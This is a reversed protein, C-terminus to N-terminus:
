IQISHFIFMTRFVPGIHHMIQLASPYKFISIFYVALVHTNYIYLNDRNQITEMYTHRHYPTSYIYISLTETEIQKPEPMM